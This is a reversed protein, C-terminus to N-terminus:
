DNTEGLLKLVTLKDPLPLSTLLGSFRLDDIYKSYAVADIECRLKGEEESLLPYMTRPNFTTNVQVGNFYHYVRWRKRSEQWVVNKYSSVTRKRDVNALNSNTTLLRLNEIRNNLGNRDKHDICLNTPTDKANCLSWVIRHCLWIESNLNVQWYKGGIGLSGAVEGRLRVITKFDKGGFRDDLWRLGTPSSEDYYLYDKFYLFSIPRADKM